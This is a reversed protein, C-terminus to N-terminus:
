SFLRKFFNVISTFIARIKEWVKAFFSDNQEKEDAGGLFETLRAHLEDVDLNQLTRCLKLLEEVQEDSLNVNLEDAIRRIEARVEDDTMEKINGLIKKLENIIKTADESGLMEALDGTTLLEQVGALKQAGTLTQGTIDEYAKYIGALAATGSLPYPATIKVDADTIGITVLVGMYILDTCWNINNTTVTLGESEDLMTILICSRSVNGLKEEPLLGEFLEREEANTMTLEKIDGEQIGFYEYIEARQEATLDEGMVVRSSSSNESETPEDTTIPDDEGAPAEDDTSPEETPEDSIIDDAPEDTITDDVPDDSMQPDKTMLEDTTGEITDPEDALITPIIVMLSLVLVLIFAIINRTKM